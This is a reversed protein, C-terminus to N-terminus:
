GDGGTDTHGPTICGGLTRGGHCHPYKPSMIYPYSELGTSVLIRTQGAPYGIYDDRRM